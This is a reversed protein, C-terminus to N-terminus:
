DALPNSLTAKSRATEFTNAEAEESIKLREAVLPFDHKFAIESARGQPGSILSLAGRGLLMEVVKFNGQQAALMLPTMGQDGTVDLDFDITLITKIYSLNNHDIAKILAATAEPNPGPKKKPELGTPLLKLAYNLFYVGILAVLTVLFVERSLGYRDAWTDPLNSGVVLLTFLLFFFFRVYLMLALMILLGLVPMIISADIHWDALAPAPMNSLLAMAGVLGVLIWERIRKQKVIDM